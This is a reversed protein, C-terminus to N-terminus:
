YDINENKIRCKALQSISMYKKCEKFTAMRFEREIYGLTVLLETGDPVSKFRIENGNIGYIKYVYWSDKHVIFDGVKLNEGECKRGEGKIVTLFDCLEM